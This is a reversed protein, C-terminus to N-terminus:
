LSISQWVLKLVVDWLAQHSGVLEYELRIRGCKRLEMQSWTGGCHGIRSGGSLKRNYLEVGRGNEATQKIYRRRSLRPSQLAKACTQQTFCRPLLDTSESINPISPPPKAVARGPPCNGMHTFIM